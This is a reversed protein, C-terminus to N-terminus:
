KKGKMKEAKVELPWNPPALFHTHGGHEIIYPKPPPANFHCEHWVHHMHSLFLKVAYRRARADIQGPSLKGSELAKKTDSEKYKKAKLQSAATEANGGEDNRKIEYAKREEYVKGYIDGDYSRLKMFSQGVKWCLTKLNANWPRKEGKGWKVTPDLGAFRWIHGVTPAKDMDIHALLGAAIVPGIGHISLMWQGIDSSKVYQNLASRVGNEITVYNNSQWQLVLNPEEEKDSERLQAAVRIRSNQANYYADVLYRAEDDTLIKAADRIDSNVKKILESVGTTNDVVLVPAASM